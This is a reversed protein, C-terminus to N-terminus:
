KKKNIFFFNVLAEDLMGYLSECDSKFSDKRHISKMKNMEREMEREIDEIDRDKKKIGPADKSINKMVERIRSKFNDLSQQFQTM